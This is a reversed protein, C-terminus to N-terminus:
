GTKRVEQEFEFTVEPLKPNYTLTLLNSLWTNQDLDFHININSLNAKKSILKTPFLKLPASTLNFHINCHSNLKGSYIAALCIFSGIESANIFIVENSKSNSNISDILLQSYKQVEKIDLDQYQRIIQRHEFTLNRKEMTHLNLNEFCNMFTDELACKNRKFNFSLSSSKKSKKAQLVITGKLLEIANM